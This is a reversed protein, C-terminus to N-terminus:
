IFNLFICILDDPFNYFFHNHLIFNLWIGLLTQPWPSLTGPVVPSEVMSSIQMPWMLPMFMTLQQLIPAPTFFCLYFKKNWLLFDVSLTQISFHFFFFGAVSTKEMRFFNMKKKFIHRGIGKNRKWNGEM